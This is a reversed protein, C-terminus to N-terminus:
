GPTLLVGPNMIRDPDFAARIDRRLQQGEPGYALDLWAVKARGVGHEASISGGFEAVLRLIAEDVTDDDPDPGVV